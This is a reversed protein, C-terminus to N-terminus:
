IVHQSHVPKTPESVVNVKVQLSEQELMEHPVSSV